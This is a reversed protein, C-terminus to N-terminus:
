GFRMKGKFLDLRASTEAADLRGGFSRLGEVNFELYELSDGSPCYPEVHYSEPTITRNYRGFCDM